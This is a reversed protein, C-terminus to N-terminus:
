AHIEEPPSGLMPIWNLIFLDPNNNPLGWWAHVGSLYPIPMIKRLLSEEFYRRGCKGKFWKKLCCRGALM